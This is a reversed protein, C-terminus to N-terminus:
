LPGGKGKALFTLGTKEPPAEEGKALLTPAEERKALLTAANKRPISPKWYIGKKRRLSLSEFGRFM